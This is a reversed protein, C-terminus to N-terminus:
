TFGEVGGLNNNACKFLLLNQQTFLIYRQFCLNQVFTQFRLIKFFAVTRSLARLFCYILAIGKRSLFKPYFRVLSRARSRARSMAYYWGKISSNKDSFKGFIDFIRM